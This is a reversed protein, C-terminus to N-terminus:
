KRDKAELYKPLRNDRYERAFAAGDYGAAAPDLEALAVPEGNRGRSALGAIAALEPELLEGTPMPPAERALVPLDHELLARYIRTTDVQFQVVKRATVVTAYSPLWTETRGVTVIGRRGDEWTLEYQDQVYTGLWRVRECGVGMLGFLNSFAHIGYNFEDVGCGAFAVHIEATEEAPKALFDQTEYCYRLSSGGTVVKGEEAWGMLVHADRVNGVIPKDILVPVDAEVFPRAREVHLDWNCSHVIAADVQGVMEDPSACVAQVNMEEAFEQAYGEPFVTGGDFVCVVDHGMERLIPLWGRPHSTDLDVMGLKM